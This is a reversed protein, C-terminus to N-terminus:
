YVFRFIGIAWILILILGTIIKESGIFTRQKSIGIIIRYKTM